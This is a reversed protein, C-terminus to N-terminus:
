AKALFALNFVLKTGATITTALVIVGTIATPATFRYRTLLADPSTGSASLFTPVGAVVSALVLGDSYRDTDGADGVDITLATGPNQNCTVTSMEPLLILGNYGEPTLDFTDATVADEVDLVATAHLIVGGLLEANVHGDALGLLAAAQTTVLDAQLNAM